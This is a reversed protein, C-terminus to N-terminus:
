AKDLDTPKNMEEVIQQDTPIVPKEYSQEEVVIRASIDSRKVDNQLFHGDSDEKLLIKDTLHKVALQAMFKPFNRTEGKPIVYEVKDVMFIFDEDDINRLTVINYIAKDDPM